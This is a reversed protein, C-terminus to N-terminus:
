NRESYRMRAIRRNVLPINVRNNPDRSKAMKKQYTKLNGMYSKLNIKKAQKDEMMEFLKANQNVQKMESSDEHSFIVTFRLGEKLNEDSVKIKSDM